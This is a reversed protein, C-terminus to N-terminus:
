LNFFFFVGFQYYVSFSHLLVYMKCAYKSGFVFIGIARWDLYTLFKIFNPQAKKTDDIYIYASNPQKHKYNRKENRSRKEKM